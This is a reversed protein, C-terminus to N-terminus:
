PTKKAMFRPMYPRKQFFFFLFYVQAQALDINKPFGRVSGSDISRFIQWFLVTLNQGSFSNSAFFSSTLLCGSRALKWSWRGQFGMSQPWGGCYTNYTQFYFVASQTDMFHPRDKDACWWALSSEKEFTTGVWDMKDSKELAAWLKNSCWICCTWWNQLTFWAM